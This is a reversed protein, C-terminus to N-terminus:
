VGSTIYACCTVITLGLAEVASRVPLVVQLLPAARGPLATFRAMTGALGMNFPASVNCFDDTEVFQRRRIGAASTEVAMFKALFVTIEHPRLMQLVIDTTETAMRNMVWCDFSTKQLRRLRQQAIATMKSDFRIERARKVMPDVLSQKDAAITM